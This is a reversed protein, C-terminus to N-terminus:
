KDKKLNESIDTMIKRTKLDPLVFCYLWALPGFIFGIWYRSKYGKNVQIEITLVASLHMFIIAIIAFLIILLATVMDVEQQFKVM